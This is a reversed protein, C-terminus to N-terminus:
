HQAEFGEPYLLQNVDRFDQSASAWREMLRRRQQLQEDLSGSETWEEQVFQLWGKSTEVMDSWEVSSPEVRLCAPIGGPWLETPPILPELQLM